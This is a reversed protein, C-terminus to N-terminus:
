TRPSQTDIFFGSVPLGKGGVACFAILASLTATSLRIASIFFQYLSLALSPLLFSSFLLFPRNPYLVLPRMALIPLVVPVVIIKPNLKM